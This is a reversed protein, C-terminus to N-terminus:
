ENRQMLRMRNIGNTSDYHIKDVIWTYPIDERREIDDVTEKLRGQWGRSNYDDVLIYPVNANIGAILDFTVGEVSHDGDIFLLDYGELDESTLLRSDKEEYTFRSDAEMLEEAIPKTYKHLGIDISKLRFDPDDKRLYLWLRSSHGGNFGIEFVSKAETRRLVWDFKERTIDTDVVHGERIVHKGYRTSAM